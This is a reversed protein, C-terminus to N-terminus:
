GRKPTATERRLGALMATTAERAVERFQEVLISAGQNILAPM